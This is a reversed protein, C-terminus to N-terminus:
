QWTRICQGIHFQRQNIAAHWLPEPAFARRRRQRRHAQRIAHMMAGRLKGAALLLAHCNRAGNDAARIQDQRILGSASQIRAGPKGDHRQELREIAVTDANQHHRM